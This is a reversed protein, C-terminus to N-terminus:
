TKNVGTHKSDINIFTMMCDIWLATIVTKIRSVLSSIIQHYILQHSM